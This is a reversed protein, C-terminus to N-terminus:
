TAPRARRVNPGLYPEVQPGATPVDDAGGEYRQRRPDYARASLEPHREEAKLDREMRRRWYRLTDPNGGDVDKWTRPWALRGPGPDVRNGLAVPSLVQEMRSGCTQCRQEPPPWTPVLVEVRGAGCRCALEFLPM